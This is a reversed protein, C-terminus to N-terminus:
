GSVVQILIQFQSMYTWCFRQKRSISNGARSAESQYVALAFSLRTFSLEPYRGQCFHTALLYPLAWLFSASEELKSLYQTTKELLARSHVSEGKVVLLNSDRKGTFTTLTAPTTLTPYPPNPTPGPYAAYMYSIKCEASLNMRCGEDDMDIGAKM